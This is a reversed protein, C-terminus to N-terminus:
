RIVNGDDEDYGAGDDEPDRSSILSCQQECLDHLLVLAMKVKGRFDVKGSEWGQYHSLLSTLKSYSDLKGNDGIVSELNRDAVRYEGCCIIVLARDTVRISVRICPM